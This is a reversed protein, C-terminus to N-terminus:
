NKRKDDCAIAIVDAFEKRAANLFIDSNKLIFDMGMADLHKPSLMSEALKPRDGKKRSLEESFRELEGIVANIFVNDSIKEQLSSIISEVEAQNIETSSLRPLVFRFCDIPLNNKTDYCDYEVFIGERTKFTKFYYYANEGNSYIRGTYLVASKILDFDLNESMRQIKNYPEYTTSLELSDANFVQYCGGEIWTDVDGPINLYETFLNINGNRMRYLARYARPKDFNVSAGRQPIGSKICYVYNDKEGGVCYAHRLACDGSIEYDVYSVFPNGSVDAPSFDRTLKLSDDGDSITMITEECIRDHILVSTAKKSGQLLICSEFITNTRKDIVVLYGDKLYIESENASVSKIGYAKLLNNIAITRAHESIAYKKINEM